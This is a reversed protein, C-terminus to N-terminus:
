VIRKCQKDLEKKTMTFSVPRGHPCYKVKGSLVLKVIEEQEQRQINRGAKIAAKCAMIHLIHDTLEESDNECVEEVTALAEARDIIEPIARIIMERDGFEEIEFGLNELKKMKEEMTEAFEGSPTFVIPELLSQSMPTMGRLKLADFISREHAAHKDIFVLEGECEAIIYTCLAEGIIKYDPLTLAEPIEETKTEEIIEVIPVEVVTAEIKPAKIEVIEQPVNVTQPSYKKEIEIPKEIKTEAVSKIIEVQKFNETVAKPISLDGKQATFDNLELKMQSQPAVEYLKASANYQPKPSAPIAYSKTSQPTSPAIDPTKVNERILSETKPSVRAEPVRREASLASLVAYYICEFVKKEDSFKVEAKTPHVNVDVAANSITLHLVCAPFKGVLLSNKFAQEVATQLALSRIWRGNVFFFQMARNGRGGSPSSVLGKVSVSDNESECPLLSKASERGFIAYSASLLDGDGPTFFEEKGDHICRVSVEPHSLACKMATQVCASAEARDSKMFKLRAPTNFFLDRVIMSTGKQCGTEYMEMIDGSEVSMFIGTDSSKPRSRLEIRSVASIAALAEGRFGLTGIAELGFEDKLKSTAHRIFCVGADEPSMGCGDDTIRIYTLGGKKLELTINFAGADISNEMLEKVVSAPREVVEGAAILDAVHPSLVNITQLKDIREDSSKFSLLSFVWCPM